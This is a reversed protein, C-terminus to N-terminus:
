MSALQCFVQVNNLLMNHLKYFSQLAAEYDGLRKNALGLNYLAQV